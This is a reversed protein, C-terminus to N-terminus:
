VAVNAATCSSKRDPFQAVILCEREISREVGSRVLDAVRQDGDAAAGLAAGREVVGVVLRGAPVPPHAIPQHAPARSRDVDDEILAWLSEAAFHEGEAEGSGDVGAAVYEVRILADTGG